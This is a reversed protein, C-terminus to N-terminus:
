AVLTMDLLLALPLAIPMCLHVYPRPLRSPCQVLLPRSSAIHFANPAIRPVHNSACPAKGEVGSPQLALSSRITAAAIIICGVLGAGTGGAEVWVAWVRM